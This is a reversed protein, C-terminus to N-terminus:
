PRALRGCDEEATSRLWLGRCHSTLLETVVEPEVPKVLFHICGAREAAKRAQADGTVAAVAIRAIRPDLQPKSRFHDETMDPLWWDLVVLCWRRPEGRLHALAEAGTRVAVVDLGTLWVLAERHSDDDEVLLVAVRRVM